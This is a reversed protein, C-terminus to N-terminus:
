VFVSFITVSVSIVIKKLLFSNELNNVKTTATTTTTTTATTPENQVSGRSQKRSRVSRYPQTYTQPTLGNM